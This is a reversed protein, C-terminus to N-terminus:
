DTALEDPSPMLKQVIAWSFTQPGGDPKTHVQRWTAVPFLEPCFYDGLVEPSYQQVNLGSCRDPGEPAFTALIAYGGPQLAHILAERYQAQSAPDTMFHFVARDHWLGITQHLSLERVDAEIWTVQGAQEGLRAKANALAQASIDVVRIDTYGQALLADPLYM